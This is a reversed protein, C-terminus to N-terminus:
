ITRGTATEVLIIEGQQLNRQAVLYRGCDEDEEVEYPLEDNQDCENAESCNMVSTDDDSMAGAM